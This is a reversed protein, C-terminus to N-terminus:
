CEIVLKFDLWLYFRLVDPYKEKKYKKIKEESPVSPSEVFTKGSSKKTTKGGDEEGESKTICKILVEGWQTNRRGQSHCPSTFPRTATSTDFAKYISDSRM